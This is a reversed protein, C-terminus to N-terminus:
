QSLDSPASPFSAGGCCLLGGSDCNLCRPLTQNCSVALYGLAPVDCRSEPVAGRLHPNSSVDLIQLSALNGVSWPLVGQLGNNGLDLRALLTLSAVDPITGTLDNDSLNLATLSILNSVSAPISRTLGFGALWTLSTVRSGQAGLSEPLWWIGNGNGSLDCSAHECVCISGNALPGTTLNNNSVDFIELEVLECVAPPMAGTLANDSVDLSTLSTLNGISPPLAGRLDQARM